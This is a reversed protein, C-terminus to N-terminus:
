ILNGYILWLKNLKKIRAFRYRDTIQVQLVKNCVYPKCVDNLDTFENIRNFENRITNFTHVTITRVSNIDENLCSIYLIHVINNIDDKTKMVIDLDGNNNNLIASSGELILQATIHAFRFFIQYVAKFM